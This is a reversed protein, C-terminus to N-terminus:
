PNPMFVYPDIEIARGCTLEGQKILRLTADKVPYKSRDSLSRLPRKRKMEAARQRLTELPAAFNNEGTFKEAQQVIGDAIKRQAELLITPTLLKNEHPKIAKFMIEALATRASADIHGIDKSQQIARSIEQVSTM